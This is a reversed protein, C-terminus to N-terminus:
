ASAPKRTGVRILWTDVLATEDRSLVQARPYLPATRDNVVEAGQWGETTEFFHAVGPEGYEALYGQVVVDVYSLLLRIRAGGQQNAKPVAYVQVEAALGVAASVDHRDYGTERLDLAAWDRGPVRAILGQLTCSPDPRASLFAVDRLTTPCWLRRWGTLSAKQADPYSQTARNVLSGYGFFSPDDTM